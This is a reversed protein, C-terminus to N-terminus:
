RHKKEAVNKLASNSRAHSAQHAQCELTKKERERQQLKNDHDSNVFQLCQLM